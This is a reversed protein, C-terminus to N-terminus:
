GLYLNVHGVHAWSPGTARLHAENQGWSSQSWPYKEPHQPPLSVIHRSFQQQQTFTCYTFLIHYLNIHTGGNGDPKLMQDLHNFLTSLVRAQTIFRFLSLLYLETYVTLVRYNLGLFVRQELHLNFMWSFPLKSCIACHQERPYLLDCFFSCIFWVNGM